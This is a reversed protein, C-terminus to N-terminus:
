KTRWWFVLVFECNISLAVKWKKFHVCYTRLTRNQGLILLDMWITEHMCICHFVTTLCAYVVQYVHCHRTPGQEQWPEGLQGPDPRQGQRLTEGHQAAQSTNTSGLCACSINGWVESDVWDLWSKRTTQKWKRLGLVLFTETVAEKKKVEAGGSFLTSLFMCRHTGM